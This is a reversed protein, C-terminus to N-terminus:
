AQAPKAVAKPPAKPKDPKPKAVKEKTAPPVGKKKPALVMVMQRGELRPFQEVLGVADLDKQVRQLLREGFEKHAMERGRFRLTVKAKDGEELFQILKGLKIKYDGEDTGPRFKIEKVQIQKQKLKAEHAKKQERYRFKGYDMLKCVPPVALPAIEVLDVNGEEALRLAEQVSKIGLQDGNDAVLRV